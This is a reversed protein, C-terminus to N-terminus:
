EGEIEEMLKEINEIQHNIEKEQQAVTKKHIYFWSFAIWALTLTYAIIGFTLSRQAFEIMYLAIGLTLLIFYLMIGRTRIIRHTNRYRILQHLYAANDVTLDGQKLLMRVLQTNFIVGLVIAFLTIVIGARTTWQEFHYYWGIFCIYFFTLCLIIGGIVNKRIMKRRAKQIRAIIEKTDPLNEEGWTQWVDKIDDFNKMSM